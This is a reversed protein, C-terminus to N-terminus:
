ALVEMLKQVEGGGYQKAYELCNALFYFAQINEPGESTSVRIHDNWFATWFDYPTGDPKRGLVAWALAKYYINIIAYPPTKSPDVGELLVIRGDKIMLYFTHISNIMDPGMLNLMIIRKGPVNFKAQLDKIPVARNLLILVRPIVSVVLRWVSDKVFDKIEELFGPRRPRAAAVLKAASEVPGAVDDPIWPSKAGVRHDLPIRGLFPVGFRSAVDELSEGGFIQYERGCECRFGSMNEIVGIVPIGNVAHVELVRAVEAAHAQVGVVISGAYDDDFVSVTVKHVDNLGAPSDVVFLDHSWEGYRIVESLIRAYESGVKYIGRGKSLSEISFVEIEAGGVSIRAPKIRKDPTFEAEASVGLLQFITPNSIDADVLAVKEGWEALKRALNLAILSKGVGGKGSTVAVAKM